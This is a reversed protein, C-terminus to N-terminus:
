WRIGVSVPVLTTARNIALGHLVRAEAYLMLGGTRRPLRLNAGLGADYAGSNGGSSFVAPGGPQLLVGQNSVGTFELSRRFWGFGAFAYISVAKAVPFRFTPDLTTSFFKARASNAELLGINTPNLNRAQQLAASSVGLRDFMFNATIFASWRHSPAPGSTLAFGGGAQFNWGADLSNADSGSVPAWGGGLNLTCSHFAADDQALCQAPVGLIVAVGLAIFAATPQGGPRLIGGKIACAPDLQYDPLLHRM